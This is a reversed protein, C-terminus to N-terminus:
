QQRARLCKSIHVLVCCRVRQAAQSDHSPNWNTDMLVVRNAETLSIGEGCLTSILFVNPREPNNQDQFTDIMTRRDKTPTSGDFRCWRVVIYDFWHLFTIDWYLMRQYRLTLVM